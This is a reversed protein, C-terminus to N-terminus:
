DEVDDMDKQIENAILVAADRLKEQELHAYVRETTAVSAHGAVGSIAALSQGKEGGYTISLATRRLDHIHVDEINVADSQKKKNALVLAQEEQSVRALLREWVKQLGVFHGLEKGKKPNRPSPFVWPSGMRKPQARIIKGLQSTIAVFKDGTRRNSKHDTKCIWGTLPLVEEQNDESFAPPDWTIEEWRLTLVEEKRMASLLLARFAGAAAPEISQEAELKRLTRELARREPKSLIRKRIKGKGRVHKPLRHTPNDVRWDEEIALNFIKSLLRLAADAQSPTECMEKSTHWAKVEKKSVEAVLRDCWYEKIRRDILAIAWKETSAKLNIRKAAYTRYLEIADQMTPASKAKKTAAAERKRAQESEHRPDKGEKKQRLSRAAAERLEELSLDPYSGLPLWQMPGGKTTRYTYFCPASSQKGPN